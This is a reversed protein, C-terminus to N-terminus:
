GRASARTRRTGFYFFDRRFPEGGPSQSERKFFKKLADPKPEFSHPNANAPVLTVVDVRDGAIKRVMKAYPALTVSVTIAPAAAVELLAFVVLIFFRLM